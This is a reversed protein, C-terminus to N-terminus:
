SWITPADRTWCVKGSADCRFFNAFWQGLRSVKENVGQGDNNRCCRVENM